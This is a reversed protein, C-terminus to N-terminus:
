PCAAFARVDAIAEAAQGLPNHYESVTGSALDRVRLTFGVTSATAAFVWFHGNVECGDLVKVLMEWNDDNFFWFLGSEDNTVPVPRAQGTNGEFDTWDIEIAFRRGRLCTSTDTPRCPGLSYHQTYIYTANGYAEQLEWAIVFEGNKAMSVTQPHTHQDLIPPRIVLEDGIHQDRANFRQAFIFDEERDTQAGWTVLFGGEPTAFVQGRGIDPPSARNVQIPPGEPAGSATFQQALLDGAQLPSGVPRDVWLILFGGPRVLLQPSVGSGVPIVSGQRSGDPRLRQIFIMGNQSWTFIMRGDQLVTVAHGTGRRDADDTMLVALGLPEGTPRFSQFYLSAREALTIEKWALFINADSRLVPSVGVFAPRMPLLTFVEGMPQSGSTFWQGRFGTLQGVGSDSDEVWEHWAVAYAGDVTPLIRGGGAETAGSDDQPALIRVETLPTGDAVLRREKLFNVGGEHRSTWVVMIEDNAVRLMRVGTVRTYYDESLLIPEGLPEPTQAQGGLPLGTHLILVLTLLQKQM